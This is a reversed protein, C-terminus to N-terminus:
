RNEGYNEGIKILEIVKNRLKENEETLDEKKTKIKYPKGFVIRLGKRFPRYKGVIAFPVIDSESDRAMKVAGIKFPLLGKGKEITGEPFIGIVCDDNLYKEAEIISNPDKQRRNVPILGMNAFIIKKPGRWLEDKALFHVSRKTSSILLICDLNNTHTGALILRQTSPINELGIYKPKFVLNTFIKILPRSFRYLKADKM